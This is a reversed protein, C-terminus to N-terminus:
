RRLKLIKSSELTPTIPNLTNKELGLLNEIDSAFLPFGYDELGQLIDSVSYDPDKLLLDVADNLLSPKPLSYIDDYPEKTRWGKRSMLRMLYQYQNMTIANLQYARRIMAAISVHWKRKLDIYHGLDTPRSLDNMFENRPLLLASAFSNAENERQRFEDKSLEEIDSSWEHLIIHGLEHALDFQRRFASGKNKGLAIIYRKGSYDSYVLQSFADIKESDLELSSVIIGNFEVHFLLNSIPGDEINWKQRLEDAFDEFKDDGNYSSADIDPINVQPFDVHQSLYDYLVSIYEITKICSTREKKSCSVLSRFYTTKSLPLSQSSYFFSRPVNLAAAMLMVKELSPTTSDNEYLSVAQKTVEAKEALDSITMGRFLRISNLMRGNFIPSAM